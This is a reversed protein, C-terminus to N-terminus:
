MKERKMTERPVISLKRLFPVIGRHGRATLLCFHKCLLLMHIALNVIHMVINKQAYNHIFHRIKKRFNKKSRSNQEKITSAQAWLVHQRACPNRLVYSKMDYAHANGTLIDAPMKMPTGVNYLRKAGSYSVIYAATHYCFETAFGVIFPSKNKVRLRARGCYKIRASKYSKSYINGRQVYACLLVDWNKPMQAIVVSQVIDALQPEIFVDDELILAYPIHEDCIKKYVALHSLACGIEGITFPKRYLMLDRNAQFANVMTNDLSLGDVAPVIRHPLKLRKLQFEMHKKRLTSRALNIVFIPISDM